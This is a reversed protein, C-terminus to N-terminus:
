FFTPNGQLPKFAPEKNMECSSPNDSYGTSVRTFARPRQRKQLPPRVERQFRSLRASNLAEFLSSAQTKTFISLSGLIFKGVLLTCKAEWKVELLMRITRGPRTEIGSNDTMVLCSDLSRQLFGLKLHGDGSYSSFISWTGAAVRSFEHSKGKAALTPGNGQAAHLPIGHEWDFMFPIDIEKNSSWLIELIVTM